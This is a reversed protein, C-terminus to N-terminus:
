GSGRRVAHVPVRRELGAVVVGFEFEDRGYDGNPQRRPATKRTARRSSIRAVNIISSDVQEVLEAWARVAVPSGGAGDVLVGFRQPLDDSDVARISTILM